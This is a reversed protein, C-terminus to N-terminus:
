PNRGYKTRYDREFDECFSAVSRATGGDLSKRGQDSWCQEIVSRARKMADYQPNKPLLSGVIMFLAFLGLVPFVVWKLIFPQKLRAGCHPCKAAGTSVEKGCERCAVLAM